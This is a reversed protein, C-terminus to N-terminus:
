AAPRTSIGLIARQLTLTAVITLAVYLFSCLHLFDKFSQIAFSNKPPIVFYLVAVLAVGTTAHGIASGFLISCFIVPLLFLCFSQQLSLEGLALYYHCFLLTLLASLSLHISTPLSRTFRLFHFARVDFRSDSQVHPLAAGIGLSLTALVPAAQWSGGIIDVVCGTPVGAILGLAVAASRHTLAGMVTVGRLHCQCEGTRPKFALPSSIV